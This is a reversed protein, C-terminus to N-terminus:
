GSMSERCCNINHMCHTYTAHQHYYESEVEREREREREWKRERERERGGERKRERERGGEREREGGEREHVCVCRQSSHRTEQFMLNLVLYLYEEGSAGGCM